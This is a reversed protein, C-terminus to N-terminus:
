DMVKFLIVSLVMGLLMLSSVGIAAGGIVLAHSQVFILAAQFCDNKHILDLNVQFNDNCTSNGGDYGSICCSLPVQFNDPADIPNLLKNMKWALWPTNEMGDKALGCCKLNRQTADWAETIDSRTDKPRYINITHLMEPKLNHKVQDRFVYSLVGGIILVVSLFFITIFYTLLIYKTDKQAGYCGLISVFIIVVGVIMTIYTSFMYLHNRLLIEIYFKDILTWLGIGLVSLGGFLTLFNVVILSLKVFRGCGDRSAKWFVM